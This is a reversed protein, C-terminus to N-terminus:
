VTVGRLEPLDGKKASETVDELGETPVGLPPGASGLQEASVGLVAVGAEAAGGRTGPRYDVIIALPRIGITKSHLGGKVRYLRDPPRKKMFGRVSDKQTTTWGRRLSKEAMHNAFQEAHSLQPKDWDVPVVKGEVKVEEPREPVKHFHEINYLVIRVLEGLSIGADAPIMTNQYGRVPSFINQPIHVM